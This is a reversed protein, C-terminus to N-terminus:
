YLITEFSSYQIVYLVSDNCVSPHNPTYPSNLRDNDLKEHGQMHLVPYLNSQQLTVKVSSQEPLRTAIADETNFKRCYAM